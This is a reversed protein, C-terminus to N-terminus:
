VLLGSKSGVRLTTGGIKVEHVGDLFARSVIRHDDVTTGYFSDINRIELAM